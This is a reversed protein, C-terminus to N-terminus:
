RMGKRSVLTIAEKRVLWQEEGISISYYESAFKDMVLAVAPREIVKLPTPQMYHKSTGYLVVGSPIHVLDGIAFPNDM